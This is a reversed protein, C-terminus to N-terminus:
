ARRARIPDVHCSLTCEDCGGRQLGLYISLHILHGAFGSGAESGLLARIQREDVGIRAHMPSRGGLGIHVCVEAYGRRRDVLHNEGEFACAKNSALRPTGRLM